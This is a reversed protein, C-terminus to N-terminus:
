LGRLAPHTVATTDGIAAADLSAHEGLAPIGLDQHRDVQIATLTEVAPDDVAPQDNEAPGYEKLFIRLFKM